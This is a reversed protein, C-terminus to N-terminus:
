RLQKLEAGQTSGILIPAPETPRISDRPELNPAGGAWHVAITLQSFEDVIRDLAQKFRYENCMAQRDSQVGSATADM